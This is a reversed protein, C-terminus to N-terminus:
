ESGKFSIGEQKMIRGIEFIAAFEPKVAEIIISDDKISRYYLGDSYVYDYIPSIDYVCNATVYGEGKLIGAAISHKGEAVFSIGMPLWLFVIHNKNEKWKGWYRDTGINAVARILNNNSWPWPFILDKTLDITYEAEVKKIVHYFWRNDNPLRINGPLYLIEVETGFTAPIEPRTILYSMFRYQTEKGLLCIVDILPHRNTAPLNYEKKSKEYEELVSTAFKMSKNFIQIREKDSLKIDYNKIDNPEDKANNKFLLKNILNIM